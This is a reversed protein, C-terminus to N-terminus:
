TWATAADSSATGRRSVATSDDAKAGCVFSFIIFGFFSFVKPDTPNSRTYEYGDPNLVPLVYITLSNLYSTIKSDTGYGRILQFFVTSQIVKTVTNIFFNATHIAAWERAHIGADLM